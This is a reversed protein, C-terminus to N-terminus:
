RGLTGFPAESRNKQTCTTLYFYFIMEFKRRPANSDVDAVARFKTTAPFVLIEEFISAPNNDM